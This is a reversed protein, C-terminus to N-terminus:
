DFLNGISEGTNPDLIDGTESCFEVNDNPRRGTKPKAGHLNKSAKRKTADDWGLLRGLRKLGNEGKFIAGCCKKINGKTPIFPPVEYGTEEEVIAVVIDLPTPPLFDTRPPRPPDSPSPANADEILWLTVIIFPVWFIEGKVDVGNTPQNLCFGYLNVGGREAIPDRSPWRGTVPDYYRYGYYYLGTEADVPKTSFRHSFDQVKTGTAVTTRGFPDYEYHAVVTGTSSLYESVNGNGDFTPYHTGSSDKVSLLGGVGGAGQMTGSLDMGWLNTKSLTPTTGVNGQYSAIPNWGDYIVLTVAAAPTITAIRRSGSDYRHSTTLSNVTASILRNEGDWAYVCSALSSAGLPQVQADIQNGDIDYTPTFTNVAIYQNLADVDYTDGGSLDGILGEATKKRNGIEDYEYARDNNATSSDNAEVLEGRVNYSWDYAPGTATVLSFAPGDYAAGVTALSDRQGIDNVGYDYQSVTTTGVENKKTTLINRTSEYTNTVTHDPQNALTTTVTELFNYTNALYGYTFTSNADAVTLLRGAIDYGYTAQTEVISGELEFGAPRM